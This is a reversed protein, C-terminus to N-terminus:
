GPQLVEEITELTEKLLLRMEPLIEFKRRDPSYKVDAYFIYILHLVLILYGMITPQTFFLVLRLPRNTIQDGQVVAPGLNVTSFFRIIEENVLDYSERLPNNGLVTTTLEGM